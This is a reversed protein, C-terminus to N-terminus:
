SCGRRLPRVEMAGPPVKSLIARLAHGLNTGAGDEDMTMTEISRKVSALDSTTEHVETPETSFKHVSFKYQGPMRNMSIAKDVFDILRDRVVDFRTRAGIREACNPTQSYGNRTNCLPALTPQSWNFTHCAFACGLRTQMLQQDAVSAGIGMSGSADVIAHISYFTPISARAEACNAM